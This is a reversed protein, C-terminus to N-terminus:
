KEKLLIVGVVIFTLSGLLGVILTIISVSKNVLSPIFFAAVSGLFVTKCIDLCVKALESLQKQNLQPFTFNM